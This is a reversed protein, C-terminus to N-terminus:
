GQNIRGLIPWLNGLLSVALGDGDGLAIRTGCAIGRYFAIM